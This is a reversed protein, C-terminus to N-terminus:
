NRPSSYSLPTRSGVSGSAPVSSLHHHIQQNDLAVRASEVARRLQEPSRVQPRLANAEPSVSHFLLATSSSKWLPVGRAARSEAIEAVLLVAAALVVFLPLALWAWRVRVLVVSRASLGRASADYSSRLQDTMMTAMSAFLATMNKQPNRLAATIGAAYVPASEGDVLTGSFSDSPFFDLLAGIDTEALRFEPLGSTNFVISDSLYSTENTWTLALHGPDLPIIETNQISFNSAVSSANTYKYAAFSLDCELTQEIAADGSYSSSQRFAVIRMFTAPYTADGSLGLPYLSKAKIVLATDWDTPVEAITFTVDGPTTMTCNEGGNLKSTTCNKTAYAAQTVNTCATSFGLSIHSDNWTCNSTCNFVAPTELGYFAKYVAGQM